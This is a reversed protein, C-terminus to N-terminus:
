WGLEMLIFTQKPGGLPEMTLVKPEEIPKMREVAFFERVMWLLMFCSSATQVLDDERKLHWSKDLNLTFLCTGFGPLGALLHGMTSATVQVPHTM